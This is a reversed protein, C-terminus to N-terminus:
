CTHSIIPCNAMFASHHSAKRMSRPKLRVLLCLSEAATMMTNYECGCKCQDINSPRDQPRLNIEEECNNKKVSVFHKKTIAKRTEM